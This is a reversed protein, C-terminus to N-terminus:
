ALLYDKLAALAVSKYTNGSKILVVDADSVSTSTPATIPAYKLDADNEKLYGAMSVQGASAGGPTAAGDGEAEDPAMFVTKERGYEIMTKEKFGAEDVTVAMDTRYIENFAKDM